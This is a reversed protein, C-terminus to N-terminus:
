NDVKNFYITRDFQETNACTVRFTCYNEANPSVDMGGLKVVMLSGQVVAPVLVEVGQVIAEVSTATTAGDVLDQSVDAVYFKKDEPDKDIWWKGEKQYPAREM